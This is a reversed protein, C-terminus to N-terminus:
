SILFEDAPRLRASSSGCGALKTLGQASDGSPSALLVNSELSPVYIKPSGFGEYKGPGRVKAVGFGTVVQCRWYRDGRGDRSRCRGSPSCSRNGNNM